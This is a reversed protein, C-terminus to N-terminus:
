GEGRHIESILIYDRKEEPQGTKKPQFKGQSSYKLSCGSGVTHTYIYSRSAARFPGYISFVPLASYNFVNERWKGGEGDEVGERNRRKDREGRKERMSNDSENEDDGDTRERM